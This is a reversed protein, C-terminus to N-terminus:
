CPFILRWYLWRPSLVEIICAMVVEKEQSLGTKAALSGATRKSIYQYSMDEMFGTQTDYVTRNTFRYFSNNCGTATRIFDV